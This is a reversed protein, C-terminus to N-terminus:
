RVGTSPPDFEMAGLDPATGKFPLGVDVGADIAASGERLRFDKANGDVFMPDDLVVGIPQTGFIRSPPPWFLAHDLSVIAALVDVTVHNSRAEDALDILNNVLTAGSVGSGVYIGDHGNWSIGDTDIRYVTNNFVEVNRVDDILRIGDGAHGYSVNRIIRVGDVFSGPSQAAVIIGARERSDHLVNDSINVDRTERVTNEGVQQQDFVHIGYGSTGSIENGVVDIDHGQHVYIGHGQSGQLNGDIAIINGAVTINSGEVSIVAWTWGSGTFKNGIIQTGAHCNVSAIFKGNTFRLGKIRVHDADVIVHRGGNSFLPTEDGYNEISIPKLATAGFDGRIWIENEDYEGGRVLLVDGGRMKALTRTMTRCPTDFTCPGDDNGDPSIFLAGDHFNKRAEDNSKKWVDNPTEGCGFVLVIFITTAISENMRSRRGCCRSPTPRRARITNKRSTDTEPM